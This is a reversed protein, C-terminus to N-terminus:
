PRWCAWSKPTERVHFAALSLQNGYATRIHPEVREFAWKALNEATPIFSVVVTRHTDGMHAMAALADADDECIVFAHDLVDHIQENLIRAVGSGVVGLGLLGLAVIGLLSYLLKRNM